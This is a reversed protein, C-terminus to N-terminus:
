CLICSRGRLGLALLEEGLKGLQQPVPALKDTRPEYKVKRPKRAYHLSPEQNQETSNDMGLVMWPDESDLYEAIEFLPVRNIDNQQFQFGIKQKFILPFGM